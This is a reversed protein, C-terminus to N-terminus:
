AAENVKAAESVKIAQIVEFARKGLLVEQNQHNWGWQAGLHGISTGKQPNSGKFNWIKVSVYCNKQWLSYLGASM